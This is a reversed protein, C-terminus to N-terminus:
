VNNKFLRKSAFTVDLMYTTNAQNISSVLPISKVTFDFNSPSVPYKGGITEIFSCLDFKNNSILKGNSSLSLSITAGQQITTMSSGILTTNLNNGIIIPYPNFFIETLNISYTLNEICPSINNLQYQDRKIFKTSEYSQIASFYITMVIFIFKFTFIM